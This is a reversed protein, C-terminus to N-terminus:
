LEKGCLILIADDPVAVLNVVPTSTGLLLLERFDCLVIPVPEVILLCFVLFVVFPPGRTLTVTMGGGIDVSEFLSSGIKSSLDKDLAGKM